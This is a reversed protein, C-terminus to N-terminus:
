RIMLSSFFFVRIIYERSCHSWIIKMKEFLYSSASYPLVVKLFCTQPISVKRSVETSSALEVFYESSRQMFLYKIKMLRFNILGSKNSIWGPWLSLSEKRLMLISTTAVIFINKEKGLRTIFTSSFHLYSSVSIFVMNIILM